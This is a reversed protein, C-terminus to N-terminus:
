VESWHKTQIEQWLLREFQEAGTASSWATPKQNWMTCGALALALGVILLVLASRRQLM